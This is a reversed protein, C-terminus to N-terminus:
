PHLLLSEGEMDEPKRIEMLALITPAIDKLAGGGRLSMKKYRDHILIFPVPNLSHATYPGNTEPDFMIEANGHDATVLMIGNKERLYTEIKGLCRDVAECAKVAAEMVGSHGVMDANAYNLVVLDYPSGEAEAKRLEELLRDTVEYSSMEPKQDYTSVERPSNILIRSEGPFPKELGGNFFYTVHAYKETEAIRLQRLGLVSIVEGLINDLSVPPFAVPLNFNRDYETFTVFGSIKPRDAVDFGSFNEETFARTLERARDARFNFFIIGDHEEIRGVPKEEHLLVTPMIFEDTENRRYAEEVAELPDAAYLGKGAVIAEWAKVVRDWRTDRDMAWYRGSVTAIRGCQYEDMARVLDRIFGAGSKPPTDRGDMFCHIYVKTLNKDAAMKLLGKLHDIHSHVGGDSVLGFLHLSSRHQGIKEMIGSLAPNAHLEGSAITKNIRTFDQYVIRGAGINLHGVESNGMQGEPLGVLGNHAELTTFPYEAMWRDMNPTDAVSVANASSPPAYGWGDLIALLITGQHRAASSRSIGTM